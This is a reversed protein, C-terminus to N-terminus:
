HYTRKKIKKCKKRFGFLSYKYSIGCFIAITFLISLVPILKNALSLISSTDEFGQASHQLSIKTTIWPLSPTDNCKANKCTNKFNNYDTSLTSLIKNYSNADNNNNHYENLKKYKEVFENAKNLYKKCDINNVDFEIYMNCLINFADYLISIINKNMNVNTMDHKKVILDKYSNYYTEVGTIEENYKHNNIHTTYFFKLSNKIENGNLSLIYILWLLIYDVIDINSKAVSKFLNSDKFFADLLYLCGANVKEIANVCNQNSCYKKFDNNNEIKYNQNSSQYTFNTSVNKFRECEKNM